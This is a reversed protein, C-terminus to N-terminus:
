GVEVPIFDGASIQQESLPGSLRSCPTPRIENRVVHFPSALLFVAAAVCLCAAARTLCVYSRLCM